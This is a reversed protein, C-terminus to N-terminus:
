DLSMAHSNSRSEIALRDPLFRLKTECIADSVDRYEALRSLAPMKSLWKESATNDVIWKALAARKLSSNWGKGGVPGAYVGDAARDMKWSKEDSEGPIQAIRFVTWDLGQAENDFAAALNLM